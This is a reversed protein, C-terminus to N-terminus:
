GKAGKRAKARKTGRSKLPHTDDPYRSKVLVTIGGRTTATDPSDWISVEFDYSPAWAFTINIPPTQSLAYHIVSRVAEQLSKPITDLFGAWPQNMARKSHMVVGTALKNGPGFAHRKKVTERIEGRAFAKNLHAIATQLAPM